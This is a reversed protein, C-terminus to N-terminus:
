GVQMARPWPDVPHEHRFPHGIGADLDALTYLVYALTLGAPISQPM